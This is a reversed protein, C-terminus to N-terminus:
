PVCTSTLTLTLTLISQELPHATNPAPPLQGQKAKNPMDTSLTEPKTKYIMMAVRRGQKSVTPNGDSGSLDSQNM